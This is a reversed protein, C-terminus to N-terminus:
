TANYFQNAILFVQDKNSLKDICKSSSNNENIEIVSASM